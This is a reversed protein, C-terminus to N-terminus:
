FLRFDWILTVKMSAPLKKLLNSYLLEDEANVLSLPFQVRIVFM